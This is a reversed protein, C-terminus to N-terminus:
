TLYEIAEEYDGADIHLNAVYTRIQNAYALEDIRECAEIAAALEPSKVSLRGSKYLAEMKLQGGNCEGRGAWDEDILRTAYRLALEHEGVQNYLYAAVGLGQERATGDTIKPLLALVQSLQTFADKYQTAVALVNVITTGARFQLTLDEARDIVSRLLPIAAHYDGDYAHKWGQLYRLYLAQRPPLSEARGQLERLLAVFRDHNSTKIADAQRLLQASEQVDQAFGASFFLACILALGGRWSHSAPRRDFRLTAIFSLAVGIAELREVPRPL